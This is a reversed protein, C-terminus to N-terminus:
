DNFLDCATVKFSEHWHSQIVPLSERAGLLYEEKECVHGGSHKQSTNSLTITRTEKQVWTHLQCSQVVSMAVSYM